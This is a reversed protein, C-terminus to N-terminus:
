RAGPEAGLLGNLLSEMSRWNERRNRQIESMIRQKFKRISMKLPIRKQLDSFLRKGDCDDQWKTEWILRMESLERECDEIFKDKWGDTLVTTQSRVIELRNFLIEAIQNVPKGETEGGRMGPNEFGYGSYVQKAVYDILQAMALEKVIESAQGSREVPARAVDADKLLDMLTDM